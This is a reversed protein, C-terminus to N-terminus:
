KPGPCGIRDQSTTTIIHHGRVGAQLTLAALSPMLGVLMATWSLKIVSVVSPLGLKAQLRSNASGQRLSDSTPLCVSLGAQRRLLQAQRPPVKM